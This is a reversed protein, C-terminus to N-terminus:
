KVVGMMLGASTRLAIPEPPNIIKECAETIDCDLIQKKNLGKRGKAGLTAALRHKTTCTLTPLRTHRIISRVLLDWAKFDLQSFDDIDSEVLLLFIFSVRRAQGHSLGRLLVHQRSALSSFLLLAFPCFPILQFSGAYISTAGDPRGVHFARQM